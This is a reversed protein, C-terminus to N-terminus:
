STPPVITAGKSGADDPGSHTLIIVSFKGDDFLTSSM